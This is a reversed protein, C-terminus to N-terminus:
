DHGCVPADASRTGYVWWAQEKENFRRWIMKYEERADKGEDIFVYALAFGGVQPGSILLNNNKNGQYEVLGLDPKTWHVGDSSEAYCLCDDDDRQYNHDYAGYWLSSTKTM